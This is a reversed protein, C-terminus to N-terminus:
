SNNEAIGGSCRPASKESICSKYSKSISYPVWTFHLQSIDLWIQVISAVFCCFSNCDNGQRFFHKVMHHAEGHGTIEAPSIM